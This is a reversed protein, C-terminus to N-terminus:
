VHQIVRTNPYRRLTAEFARAADADDFVAWEGRMGLGTVEVNMTATYWGGIVSEYEVTFKGPASIMNDMM